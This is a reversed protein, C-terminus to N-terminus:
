RPTAIRTAPIVATLLPLTESGHPPLGKRLTTPQLEPQRGLRPPPVQKSEQPLARRTYSMRKAM